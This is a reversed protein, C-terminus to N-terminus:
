EVSDGRERLKLVLSKFEPAKILLPQELYSMEDKLFDEFATRECFESYSKERYRLVLEAFQPKHDKLHKRFNIYSRFDRKEAGKPTLYNFAILLGDETQISLNNMWDKVTDNFKNDRNEKVRRRVLAALEDTKFARELISCNFPELEFPYFGDLYDQIEVKVDNVFLIRAFKNFLWDREDEDRYEGLFHRREYDAVNLRLHLTSFVKVGNNVRKLFLCNKRQSVHVTNANANFEFPNEPRYPDYDEEMRDASPEDDNTEPLSVSTEPETNEFIDNSNDPKDFNEKRDENGGTYKGAKYAQNQEPTKGKAKEAITNRKKANSMM